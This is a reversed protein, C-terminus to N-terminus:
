RIVKKAVRQGNKEFQIIYLGSNLGTLDASMVNTQRMVMQGSLTYVQVNYPPLIETPQPAVIDEVGSLFAFDTSIEPLEVPSGTLIIFEGPALVVETGSQPQQTYYNYWTGSPIKATQKDTAHFNGAVFVEEGWQITRVIGNLTAKKPQKLAVFKDALLRTRLQIAQAIKTYQDMRVPHHFYGKSEPRPKKACRNDGSTGNPQSDSSNISFDYGIEEYQWLMHPGALLVNFVVNVAVRKLRLDADNKLEGVGSKRAYYQMREEDHSECYSVYGRKNAGGFGSGTSGAASKHYAESTNQWCMMGQNILKPWDDGASAGWHELIFYADESVAKVGNHYYDSIHTLANNTTGCLGHSLDMRFGDVKYEKLWYQLARTFMTKTPTFDHNWDEYVNDSHPANVNFWPNWQLDDGYPYLKNMPNLGTAHNFVMDVIVAIGEKHCADVFAKMDDPTGYAKDFAFYHNPSYGWNYNGDFEAMPMLEIANVGLGKLYDLRELVAKLSRKPTYDYVWLEYIVLNNKDPRKFNLTADSWKYEPKDTQIVTVYGDGEKPYAKLWPDLTKPEHADDPHLVKESYLDSIRKVQGDARIVVYQLAYEKQPELGTLEIWFYASDNAQKLQYDNSITWNNFDGVVFVHKAPDAILINCVAKAAGDQTVQLMVNDTLTIPESQNSDGNAAGNRYAVTLEKCSETFVYWGDKLEPTVEKAAGGDPTVIATITETWHSPMKAKVVLDRELVEYTAKNDGSQHIQINVNSTVTIDETQNNNTTWDTGNRFIINLAGCEETVVYWEGEKQPHVVKGEAGADWVWATITNTWHAPMKARITITNSTESPNIKCGAYTCLTVKTNDEEDYYIGNVVGAPRNKKEARMPVWTSATTTTTGSANTATLEFDHQGAQSFTHTYAMDTGTTTMVVEGNLKLTMDASETAYCNLTVESDMLTMEQLAPVMNVALGAEALVVFIDSGSASKAEKSGGPGDHFVFAMKKIETDAPCGYFDYISTMKLVWNDGEKTMKGKTNSGRWDDITHKWDGDSSSAATILGTHAYCQEADMMGKNGENPNFIIIITEDYGKQIIGPVTTVQAMALTAFVLAFFLTLKRMNTLCITLFSGLLM